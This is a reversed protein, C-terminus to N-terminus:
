RHVIAYSSVNPWRKSRTACCAAACALGQRDPAVILRCATQREADAWGCHCSV